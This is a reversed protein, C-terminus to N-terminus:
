GQDTQYCCRRHIGACHEELKERMVVDRSVWENVREQTSGLGLRGCTKRQCDGMRATYAESLWRYKTRDTAIAAGTPRLRGNRIRLGRGVGGKM